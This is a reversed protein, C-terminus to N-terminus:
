EDETAKNVFAESNINYVEICLSRVCQRMLKEVPVVRAEINPYRNCISDFDEKYRQGIREQALLMVRNKWFLYAGGGSMAALAAALVPNVAILAAIGGYFGIAGLAVLSVIAVFILWGSRLISIVAKLFSLFGTSTLRERTPPNVLHNYLGIKDKVIEVAQAFFQGFDEYVSERYKM